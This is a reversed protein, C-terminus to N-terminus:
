GSMRENRFRILALLTFPIIETEPFAQKVFEAGAPNASHCIVRGPFGIQTLHEAPDEGFGHTPYRWIGFRWAAFHQQRL